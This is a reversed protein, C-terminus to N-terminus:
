KKYLERPSMSAYSPPTYNRLVVKEDLNYKAGKIVFQEIFYLTDDVFPYYLNAVDHGAGVFRMIHYPYDNKKFIKALYNSGFLGKNFLQIKNYKVLKDKTGHLFYTPAPKTKYKPKGTTSITAGSFSIVGGFKFDKPLVEALPTRNSLEYDAQLSTIAGASSGCLVIQKPDIRFTEAQKLIFDVSSFLDETAIYISNFLPATDFPSAASQGKMGLRYDIAIAVVGKKQLETCYRIINNSDRSGGKFGGGFLFIVCPHTELNDIPEYVDMYLHCTDREAFQYITYDPIFNLTDKKGEAFAFTFLFLLPIVLLYRKM